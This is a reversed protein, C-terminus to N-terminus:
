VETKHNIEKVIEDLKQTTVIINNVVIVNEKDKPNEHNFLQGLGLLTAVQARVKHSQIWAIDRLRGNQVKVKEVQNNILLFSLLTIVSASLILTIIWYHLRELSLQSARVDDISQRQLNAIETDFFSQIAIINKIHKGREAYTRTNNSDAKILWDEEANIQKALTDLRQGESNSVLRKLRRMDFSIEWLGKGYTEVYAQSPSNKYTSIYIVANKFDNSVKQHESILTTTNIVDNNSKILLTYNRQTLYIIAVLLGIIVTGLFLNTNGKNREM